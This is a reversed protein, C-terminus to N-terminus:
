RGALLPVASHYSFVPARLADYVPSGALNTGPLTLSARKGHRGTPSARKDRRATHRFTGTNLMHCILHYIQAVYLTKPAITGWIMWM